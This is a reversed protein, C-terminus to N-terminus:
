KIIPSSKVFQYLMHYSINLSSHNLEFNSQYKFYSYMGDFSIKEIKQRETTVAEFRIDPVRNLKVFPIDPHVLPTLFMM